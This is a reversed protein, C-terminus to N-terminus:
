LCPLLGQYSLNESMTNISRFQLTHNSIKQLRKHESPQFLQTSFKAMLGCITGGVYMISQLFTKSYGIEQLKISQAHESQQYINYM